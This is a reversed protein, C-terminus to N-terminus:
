GEINVVIGAPIRQKERTESRMGLYIFEGVSGLVDRPGVLSLSVSPAPPTSFPRSSVLLRPCPRCRDLCTKPADDVYRVIVVVCGQLGHLRHVGAAFSAVLAQIGRRVTQLFVSVQRAADVLLELSM